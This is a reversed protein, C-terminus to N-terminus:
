LTKDLGIYDENEHFLIQFTFTGGFTAKKTHVAVKPFIKVKYLKRFLFM